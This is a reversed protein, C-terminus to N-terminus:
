TNKSKEEEFHLYMCISFIYIMYFLLYHFTCKERVGTGLVICHNGEGSTIVITPKKPVGEEKKCKQYCM